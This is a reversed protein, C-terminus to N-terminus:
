LGDRFRVEKKEGKAGIAIIVSKKRIELFRITLVEDGVKISQTITKNAQIVTDNIIVIPTKGTIIGELYLSDALKSNVPKVEAAVPTVVKLRRQSTPFFPDKGGKDVDDVFVSQPPNASVPAPPASAASSVTNTRAPVANTAGFGACGDLAMWAFALVFAAAM